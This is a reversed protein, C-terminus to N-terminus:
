PQSDNQLMFLMRHQQSSRIHARVADEAAAADRRLLAEVIELHQRHAAEARGGEQLLSPLLSMTVSLQQLSALLYRNHAALAMLNHFQRNIESLRATDNLFEAESDVLNKLTLLETESAGLATLRGAAGELVERMTYLEVIQQHSLSTVILGRRPVNTLLGETELKSIADRVPTRSVGLKSALAVETVREGIKLQGNQIATRVQEYVAFTVDRSKTVEKL